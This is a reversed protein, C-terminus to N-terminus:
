TQGRLPSLAIGRSDAVTLLSAVVSSTPADVSVTTVASLVVSLVITRVDVRGVVVSTVTLNRGHAGVKVRRVTHTGLVESAVRAIKDTTSDNGARARAVSANLETLALAVDLDATTVREVNLDSAGSVNLETQGSASLDIQVNGSLATVASIEIEVIGSGDRQFIRVIRVIGDSM